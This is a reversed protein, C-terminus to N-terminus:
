EEYFVMSTLTISDDDVMKVSQFIRLLDGSEAM